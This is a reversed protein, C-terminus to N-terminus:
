DNNEQRLSDIYDVIADRCTPCLDMRDDEDQIDMRESITLFQIGNVETEEGPHEPDKSFVVYETEDNIVDEETIPDGEIETEDVDAVGYADYIRGCVACKKVIGSAM